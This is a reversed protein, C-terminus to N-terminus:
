QCIRYCFRCSLVRDCVCSMDSVGWASSMPEACNGVNADLVSGLSSVSAVRGVDSM